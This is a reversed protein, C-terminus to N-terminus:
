PRILDTAAAAAIRERESALREPLIVIAPVATEALLARVADLDQASWEAGPEFM